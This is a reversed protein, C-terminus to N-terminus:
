VRIEGSILKPLLADRIKTLNSINMLNCNMQTFINQSYKEFKNLIQIKPVLIFMKNVRTIYIHQITSGDADMMMKQQYIPTMLLNYLFNTTIRSNPQLLAISQNICIKENKVIALRGLTGDKSLLIDNYKPRSKDTLKNNYADETTQRATDYNIKNGKLDKATIMYPGSESTPMPCTFGYTIRELFNDLIECNWGKPIKGLESDEFEEVGDFDIFWSEFITQIIKELDKNQNQFNTILKDIRYLIDGIKIQVSLPPYPISLNILDDSTIQSAATQRIIGYINNRGQISNFYYFYFKPYSKSSDLRLRFTNSEFIPKDTVEDILCCKGVGEFVLSTRGFVLDGNDCSFKEKEEETVQILDMKQKSIVTNEFITKMKIWRNGKGQFEKSKYLGNRPKELLLNKLSINTPEYNSITIKSKLVM